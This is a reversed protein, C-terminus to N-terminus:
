PNISSLYMLLAHALTFAAPLSVRNSASNPPANYLSPASTQTFIDTLTSSLLSNTHNCLLSQNTCFDETKEVLISENKPLVAVNLVSEEVPPVNISLALANVLCEFYQHLMLALLSDFLGTNFVAGAYTSCELNESILLVLQQFTSSVILDNLCTFGGPALDDDFFFILLEIMAAEKVDAGLIALGKVTYSTDNSIVFHGTFHMVRRIGDVECATPSISPSASPSLTPSLSPSLTPSNTPSTSPSFTPSLTPSETPSPTPSVVPPPTAGSTLEGFYTSYAGFFSGSNHCQNTFDTPSAASCGHFSHRGITGTKNPGPSPQVEWSIPFSGSFGNLCSGVYLHHFFMGVDASNADTTAALCEPYCTYASIGDLDNYIWAGYGILDFENVGEILTRKKHRGDEFFLDVCPPDADLEGGIVPDGTCDHTPYYNEITPNKGSFKLSLETAGFYGFGRFPYCFDIINIRVIENDSPTAGLYDQMSVLSPEGTCTATAYYAWAIIDVDKADSIQIAFCLCILTLSYTINM